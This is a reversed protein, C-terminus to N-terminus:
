LIDELIDFLTCPTVEGLSVTDFLRLATERLSTVDDACVTDDDSTVAIAYSYRGENELWAEYLSYHLKLEGLTIDHQRICEGRCETLIKNSM